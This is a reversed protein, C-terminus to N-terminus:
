SVVVHWSSSVRYFRCAYPQAVTAGEYKKVGSVNSCLSEVREVSVCAYMCVCVYLCMCVCVCVCAGERERVCDTDESRVATDGLFDMLLHVVGSAVEPFRGAADHIAAVLLGTYEAGGEPGSPAASSSQSRAIEKKLVMVVQRLLLLPTLPTSSQGLLAPTPANLLFAPLTPLPLLLLAPTHCVLCPPASIQRRSSHQWVACGGM